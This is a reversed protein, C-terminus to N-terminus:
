NWHLTKPLADFLWLVRMLLYAAILGVGPIMREIWWARLRRRQSARDTRTM